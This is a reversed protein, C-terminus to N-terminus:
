DIIRCGWPQGNDGGLPWGSAVSVTVAGGGVGCGGCGGCCGGGVGGGDCCGVGGGGPASKDL